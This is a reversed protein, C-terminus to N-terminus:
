TAVCEAKFSVKNLEAVSSASMAASTWNAPALFSEGPPAKGCTSVIDQDLPEGPM